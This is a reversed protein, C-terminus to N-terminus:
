PIKSIQKQQAIDIFKLFDNELGKVRLYEHILDLTSMYKINECQFSISEAYNSTYVALLNNINRELSMEKSSITYSLGGFYHNPSLGCEIMKRNYCDRLRQNAKQAKEVFKETLEREDILIAEISEIKM